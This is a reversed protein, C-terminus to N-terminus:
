IMTPLTVTPDGLIVMARRDCAALRLSMASGRRSFDGKNVQIVESEAQSFLSGAQDFFDRFALGVPKPTAAHLHTYLATTISDTLTQGTLTDRLTWDFTPEVHGIFARLPRAAGLLATPLPSIGPGAAAIKNLTEYMPSGAEFLTTYQANNGPDLANGVAGSGASCCAHSYWIAGDPNWHKLLEGPSLTSYDKDVLLGMSARMTAPDDLPSTKGHSTSLVFAPKKTTLADVLNAVSAEAGTMHRLKGGVQTDNRFSNAMPLAISQAMLHSIDTSRHDVAWIVPSTSSITSASWDNILCDVYNALAGDALHLRGVFCLLNLDYQLAWPIEAPGGYLLLYHPLEGPGIGHRSLLSIDEMARDRYYRRLTKLGKVYRLVPAGARHALLKRLPAPADDGAAKEADSLGAVDPLVLGWGVKPDRWNSPDAPPPAALMRLDSGQSDVMGQPGKYTWRKTASDTPCTTDHENGTWADISLTAPYSADAM